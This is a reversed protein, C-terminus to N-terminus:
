TLKETPSRQQQPLRNQVESWVRELQPRELVALAADMFVREVEKQRALTEARRLRGRLRQTDQRLDKARKMALNIRSLWEPDASGKAKRYEIQGWMSTIQEDLWACADDAEDVNEIATMDFDPIRGSRPIASPM